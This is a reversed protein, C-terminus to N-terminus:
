SEVIDPSLPNLSAIDEVEMKVTVHKGTFVIACYIATKTEPALAYRYKKQQIQTLAKQVENKMVGDQTKTATERKLKKGKKLEIIIASKGPPPHLVLDSRGLGHERNSEIRYGQARLPLVVGLMFGHYFAEDQRAVDHDSPLHPPSM